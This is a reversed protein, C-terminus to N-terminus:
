PKTFTRDKGDFLPTQISIVKLPSHGLVRTVSHKIGEPVNIFDGKKITISKGGVTMIAKGSLVIINETHDNHYHEPVSDKVWIVFSSQHTDESIKLVHINEFEATPKIKKLSQNTQGFLILTCFVCAITLITKMTECKIYIYSNRM